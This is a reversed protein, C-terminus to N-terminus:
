GVLARKSKKFTKKEGKIERIANKAKNVKTNRTTLSYKFHNKGKIKLVKRLQKMENKLKALESQEKM